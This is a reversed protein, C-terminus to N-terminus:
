RLENLKRTIYNSVNEHGVQLSPICIDALSCSKCAKKLRVTPTYGRQYYEHMETAAQEVKLRLETTLEVSIRHHTKGYYIVARNIKTSLMEEICIAQACVQGEDCIGGKAEGKKYEVPVPQYVGLRGKLSVGESTPHFEVLDCIGYFGLYRSTIPMARSIIVNKLIECFFPDDVKSHFQKGEVTFINEQWCQEIHIFAWQRRCFLFHQIGSLPLFEEESYESKM